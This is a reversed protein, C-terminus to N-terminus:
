GDYVPITVSCSNNSGVIYQKRHRRQIMLVVLLVIAVLLFIAIIAGMIGGVITGAASSGGVSTPLEKTVTYAVSKSTIDAKTTSSM